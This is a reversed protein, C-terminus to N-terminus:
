KMEKWPLLDVTWSCRQVHNCLRTGRARGLATVQAGGPPIWCRPGGRATIVSLPAFHLAHISQTRILPKTHCTSQPSTATSVVAM